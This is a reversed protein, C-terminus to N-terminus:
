LKIISDKFYYGKYYDERFKIKIMELNLSIFHAENVFNQFQLIDINDYDNEKLVTRKFLLKMVYIYAMSFLAMM